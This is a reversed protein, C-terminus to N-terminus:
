FSVSRRRDYHDRQVIDQSRLLVQAPRVPLINNLQVPLLCCFPQGRGEGKTSIGSFMTGHSYRAETVTTLNSTTSLHPRTMGEDIGMNFYSCTTAIFSPLTVIEESRINHSAKYCQRIMTDRTNRCVRQLQAFNHSTTFHDATVDLM